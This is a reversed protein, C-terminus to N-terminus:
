FAWREGRQERAVAERVIRQGHTLKRRAYWTASCPERHINAFGECGRETFLPLSEELMRNRMGLVRGYALYIRVALPSAGYVDRIRCPERFLAARTLTKM